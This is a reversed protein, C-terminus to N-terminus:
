FTGGVQPVLRFHQDTVLQSPTWRVWDAQRLWPEAALSMRRLSAKPRRKQPVCVAGKLLSANAQGGPLGEAAKLNTTRLGCGQTRKSSDLARRM